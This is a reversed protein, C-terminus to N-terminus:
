GKLQHLLSKYAPSTAEFLYDVKNAGVPRTTFRRCVGLAEYMRARPAYVEARVLGGEGTELLDVRTERGLAAELAERLAKADACDVLAALVYVQRAREVAECMELIMRVRGLFKESRGLSTRSGILCAQSRFIRGGQVVKLHNDKLTAGSSTLDSICDAVGMEPAIETAGHSAVLRFYNVGHEALYRSTLRPFKTAIRAERGRSKWEWTLDAFDGITQVDMWSDPVALVLDARGFGMDEMLVLIEAQDFEERVIDLGTVGVDVTGDLIKAPIESARQYLVEVDDVGAMKGTYRRANPRSLRLGAREFFAMTPESLAGKSPVALRLKSYKRRESM